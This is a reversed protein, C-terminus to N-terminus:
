QAKPKTKGPKIEHPELVSGDMLVVCAMSDLLDTRFQIVYYWCYKLPTESPDFNKLQVVIIDEIGYKREALWKRAAAVAARPSVPVDERQPNWRPLKLLESEAALWEFSSGRTNCTYITVDGGLVLGTAPLLLFLCAFGVLCTKM